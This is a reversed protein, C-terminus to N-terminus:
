NKTITQFLKCLEAKAKQIVPQWDGNTKQWINKVCQYWPMNEGYVGMQWMAQRPTLQITPVGLAGALHVVSQPVSIVMDLNSVFAATEDYDDIMDQWHYIKIGFEKEAKDIQAQADDTYQLSFYYADIEKLIPLWQKLSIIREKLNTKKTGGKWSIGIKPKDSYPKLLEDFKRVLEDDAKLYPVGLFDEKKNRLFKGCSALPICADIQHNFPWSVEKDKRTGYVTAEPFSNRFIKYLRPHADFIVNCKKSLILDLIMSAFMIEDGIGQEGYVVITKGTAGDWEPIENIGYNRKVGEETRVGSSYWKWGTEYNGLELQALSGNWFAEQNNPEIKLAEEIYKLAEKPQGQAIYTTGLNVLTPAEEEKIGMERKVELAKKFAARAELVYEDKKYCYGLNLWANWQNFDKQIVLKFLEIALANYEKKMLTTAILFLITPSGRDLNLIGNFIDLASNLEKEGGMKLLLVGKNIQEQLDIQMNMRSYFFARLNAGLLTRLKLFM